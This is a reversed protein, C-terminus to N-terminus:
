SILVHISIVRMLDLRFVSYKGESYNWVDVHLLPM